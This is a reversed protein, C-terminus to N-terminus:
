CCGSGPTCSNTSKAILNSLNIKPKQAKEIVEETGCCAVAAEEPTTARDIAKCCTQDKGLKVIVQNGLVDVASVPLVATHFDENGYEFKIVTNALTPRVKEVAKFIKLAKSTNLRHNPEPLVNEWLQVHVEKWNNQVGGCDVTDYSVNKVETIHYDMRTYAGKKYEFLLPLDSHQELIELFQTTTM